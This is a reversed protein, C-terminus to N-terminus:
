GLRRAAAAQIAALAERFVFFRRVFFRHAAVGLSIASTTRCDPYRSCALFEGFRGRRIVVPSGCTPKARRDDDRPKATAAV